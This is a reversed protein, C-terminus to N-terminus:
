RREWEKTAARILAQIDQDPIDELNAYTMGDVSFYVGGGPANHLRIARNALPTRPQLESLIDGIERALDITPMLTPAASQRKLEPERPISIAQRPIPPERTTSPRLSPAPAKKKPAPADSPQGQPKAQTNQQKRIYDRAFAALARIAEVVEKRMADDPVAELSRYRKGGVQIEWEQTRTRRVQLLPTDEFAFPKSKSSPTTPIGLGKTEDESKSRRLTLTLWISLGVIAVVAVFLFLPALSGFLMDIFSTTEM